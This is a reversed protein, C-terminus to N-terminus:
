QLTAAPPPPPAAGHQAIMSKSIMSEYAFTFASHVFGSENLYRYVLYNVQVCACVALPSRHAPGSEERPAARAGVDSLM